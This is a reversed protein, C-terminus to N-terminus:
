DREADLAEKVSDIYDNYHDVLDSTYEEIADIQQEYMEVVSENSDLVAKTYDHQQETLERLKSYYDEESDIGLGLDAYYKENGIYDRDFRSLEANTEGLAQQNIAREQIHTALAAVGAETWDGNDDFMDESSLIDRINQLDSTLNSYRNNVEELTDWHIQGIAENLDHVNSIVDDLEGEISNITDATSWWEESGEELTDLYEYAEDRQQELLSKRENELDIQEKYYQEGARQGKAELLDIENQVQEYKAQNAAIRNEWYEMDKQFADKEVDDTTGNGGSAEDSSYRTKVNDATLGEAIKLNDEAKKLAAEADAYSQAAANTQETELDSVVSNYADTARGWSGEFNMNKWDDLLSMAGAFLGQTQILTKNVTNKIVESFTDTTQAAEIEQVALLATNYAQQASAKITALKQEILREEADAALHIAGTEDVSVIEAYNDTYEMLQSLTELSVSGSYAEEARAQELLDMADVVNGVAAALENFNDIYGSIEDELNPFMEKTLDTLQQANIDLLQRQFKIGVKHLLNGIDANKAEIEDYAGELVSTIDKLAQDGAGAFIQSLSTQIVKGEEDFLEQLGVDTMAGDVEISFKKGNLLQELKTTAEGLKEMRGEITGLASDAAFMTFYDRANDVSLGVRGLADALGDTEKIIREISMAASSDGKKLAEVYVDIADSAEAFQEKNLIRNIANTKANDGGSAIAWKDEVDAIIDLWKNSEIQWDELNDGTYYAIDSANEAWKGQTDAVFKEASDRRRIYVDRQEKLQKILGSDGKAEADIIQQDIEAIQDVSTRYDEIRKQIADFESYKDMHQGSMHLGLESWWAVKSGDEYYENDNDMAEVFTQANEKSKQKEELELLDLRRQLEDNQKRLNDLEEKETFTLSDKALLEAMRDNTTELESNVEDLESKIDSLESKLDSLKEQLKETKSKTQSLLMVVTMIASAIALIWGVPNTAMFSKTTADLIRLSGTTSDIGVKLGMSAAAAIIQANTLKNTSQNNILTQIVNKRQEQTLFGTANALGLSSITAERQEKDNIQMAITNAATEATVLGFARGLGTVSAIYQIIGGQSQVTQLWQLPNFKKYAMLIAAVKVIALLKGHTTDLSKIIETGQEVVLKIFDSDLINSWLAQYSNTFQDIKGQISDLYKENEALASGDANQASEFAKELDKTNSLIAAAANSRNKGALIELLAAQDVDSIDKWVKSIELLIEYTSKYAGSETLIDVGSLSKVKSRLKSKSEIVGTTDEGSEELEKLSTGRLRLSITRLASGVSNPDQVVRNAAAVLAVAEEYSNNAAMLSSASDQLATAIGDSSVAFNNGVENMVDVVNMANDATYGFAQMTSTLASTAQDISEFESVNLLISTSEALSAADELSYGLRSWDATSSVVEQITSGVRDATKAATDLFKEYTETTENTVKKLETLAKDIDRVYQIGRRIENFAKYIISSGSFYTFIEKTKRAIDDLLSPMKKTTGQVARLANDTGRIGATFTTVENNANRTTYTLQQTAADYDVIKAQGNTLQMVAAQLQAKVDTGPTLKANLDISNEDSFYEYNSILEKLKQTYMDVAATDARLKEADELEIEGGKDTIKKRTDKLVDLAKTLDKVEKLESTDITEDGIRWLSMLTDDGKRWAANAKSVRAADRSEKIRKKYDQKEGKAKQNEAETARASERKAELIALEEAHQEKNLRLREHELGILEEQQRVAEAKVPDDKDADAQAQLKGLKEYEKVLKAVGGRTIEASKTAKSETQANNLKENLEDDLKLVEAKDRKLDEIKQKIADVNEQASLQEMSDAQAYDLKAEAAGLQTYLDTLERVAKLREKDDESTKTDEIRKDYGEKRKQKLLGMEEESLGLLKAQAEVARELQEAQKKAEISGSTAYRAELDGLEAYRKELDKYLDKKINKDIGAPQKDAPQKDTPQRGSTGKVVKSDISAVVTKIDILTQAMTADKDSPQVNINLNDLKGTNTQINDLVSKVEGLTDERAWPAQESETEAGEGDNQQTTPTLINAFVKSLVAELSKEDIAVTSVVGNNKQNESARISAEEQKLAAINQSSEEILQTRIDRERELRKLSKEYDLGADTYYRHLTSDAVGQRQAEQYAKYWAVDRMEKAYYEDYNDPHLRYNVLNKTRDRLQETAEKKGSTIFRDDNLVPDLYKLWAQASSIIKEAEKIESQIAELRDTDVESGQNSNGVDEVVKVNFTINGLAAALKEEDITAVTKAEENPENSNSTSEPSDGANTSDDKLEQNVEANDHLDNIAAVVKDAADSVNQSTALNGIASVFDTPVNNTNPTSKEGGIQASKLETILESFPGFFGDYDKRDWNADVYYDKFYADYEARAANYGYKQNNFKNRYKISGDAQTEEEFMQEFSVRTYESLADGYIVTAIAYALKDYDIGLEGDTLKVKYTVRKLVNELSNEDITAVSSAESQPADYLEVRGMEELVESPKIRLGATGTREIQKLVEEVSYGGVQYAKLINQVNEDKTNVGMTELITKLKDVKAVSQDAAESIEYLRNTLSELDNANTIDFKANVFPSDIGATKLAANIASEYLEDAGKPDYGTTQVAGSSDVTFHKKHKAVMKTEEQALATRFQEAQEATVNTLDILRVVNGTFLATAGYLNRDRRMSTLVDTDSFGDSATLHGSSPSLRLPHSHGEVLFNNRDLGKLERAIQTKFPIEGPVGKATVISGDSSIGISLEIRPNDKQGLNEQNIENALESAKLVANRIASKRQDIEPKKIAAVLADKVNNINVDTALDNLKAVIESLLSNEAEDKDGDIKVKYVIDQLVKKLSKEDITVSSGSKGSDDAPSSDDPAKPPKSDDPEPTSDDEAPSAEKKKRGRKKQAGSDSTNSSTGTLESIQQNVGDLEAQLQEVARTANDFEKEIVGWAFAMKNAVFGTPNLASQWKGWSDSFDQSLAGRRASVSENMRFRMNNLLEQAELINVRNEPTLRAYYDSAKEGKQPNPISKILQQLRSTAEDMSAAIKEVDDGMDIPKVTASDFNKIKNIKTKNSIGKKADSIERELEAKKAKLKELEPSSVAGSVLSSLDIGKLAEEVANKIGEAYYRGAVDGMHKWMDENPMAILSEIDIQEKGLLKLAENFGTGITKITEKSMRQVIDRVKAEFEPSDLDIQVNGLLDEFEKAEKNLQAKDLITKVVMLFEQKRNAM